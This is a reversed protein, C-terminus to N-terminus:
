SWCQVIQVFNQLVQLGFPGSLEPHFQVGWYNRLHVVSSFEEPGHTSSALTLDPTVPAFFSHVFYFYSGESIGDLLGGDGVEKRQVQNWGVHPVKLGPTSFRTVRGRLVGLGSEDGEATSEFLLQLGLCVGLFPRELEQLTEVLGADALSRMAHGASGVGPLIVASAERIRDAEATPEHRVGLHNLARAVSHLNGASYDVVAIM